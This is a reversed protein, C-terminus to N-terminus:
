KFTKLYNRAQYLDFETPVHWGKNKEKKEREEYERQFIENSLKQREILKYKTDM